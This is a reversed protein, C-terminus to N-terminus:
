SLLESVYPPLQFAGFHVGPAYYRTRLGLEAVRKSLIDTTLHRLGADNTAWGLAMVGGVYTPVAALFVSVDSFHPMLRQFSRRLEDGQYFPVGNQTVVIGGPSLRRRCNEYFEETFLVEGPGEPDTSDVIIVDFTRDTDRVFAIGDAILLECRPDDFAGNSLSPMYEVCFDVVGHDIEVVTVQEVPHRLAERLVGGDGGGIILVRKARGFAILPVHAIMEHYVFEDRETTQVVGDLALVRGFFSTEFIVMDQFDTTKRAVERSVRFGQRYGHDMAGSYLTEQFWTM